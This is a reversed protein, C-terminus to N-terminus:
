SVTIKVKKTINSGDTTKVSITCKGKQIGTVKGSSTVTAIKKNSSVYKLSKNTANSPSVTASIKASKGKKISLSAKKLTIKKVLIKKQKVTIKKSAKYTGDTSTVTITVSGAKIGTIVGNQTITAIKTNSCKWQFSLDSFLAKEEETFNVPVVEATIKSGTKVSSPASISVAKKSPQQTVTPTPTAGKQVVIYTGAAYAYFQYHQNDIAKGQCVGDITQLNPTYYVSVNAASYNEPLSITTKLPHDHSFSFDTVDLHFGYYNTVDSISNMVSSLESTTRPKATPNVHHGYSQGALDITLKSIFSNFDVYTSLDMTNENEKKQWKAYLTLNDKIRETSYFENTFTEDTFWGRFWYGQKQPNSPLTITSGPAINTIPPTYSGGDNEFTIQYFIPQTSGAYTVTCSATKGNYYASITYEGPTTITLDSSFLYDSIIQLSGDEYMATVVFDKQSLTVPETIEKGVYKMFLATISPASTTEAACVVNNNFPIPIDSLFFCSEVTLIGIGFGCLVGQLLSHKRKNM